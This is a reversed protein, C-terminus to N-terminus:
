CRRGQRIREGYPLDRRVINTAPNEESPSPPDPPQPRIVDDLEDDTSPRGRHDGIRGKEPPTNAPAREKTENDAEGRTESMIGEARVIWTKLPDSKSSM